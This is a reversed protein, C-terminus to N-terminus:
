STYLLCLEALAIGTDEAANAIDACLRNLDDTCESYSLDDENNAPIMCILARIQGLIDAEDGIM